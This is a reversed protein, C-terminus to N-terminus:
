SKFKGIIDLVLDDIEDFKAQKGGAEGTAPEVKKMTRKRLNQWYTDKIYSSDKNSPIVGLSKAEETITDWAETKDIKTVKPSFQGFLIDKRDRIMQLVKVKSQRRDAM